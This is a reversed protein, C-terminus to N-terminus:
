LYLELLVLAVSVLLILASYPRVLYGSSPASPPSNTSTVVEKSCAYNCRGARVVRYVGSQTLIYVDKRNDEGFSFIYELAPLNSNPVSDCKIPSDPACSFPVDSTTFNGSNRPNESAAWIHSAYLDGYLYSGYTCPDTQARYFYGGSIAASGLKNFNAHSYGLVPFIPDISAASTNGGPTKQPQFVLPGEYVRWGYNGGKSIIDVEEYQDQGVDACLFYSPREADFSCRWPNRLGYAWIEPEMEKDDSYPNDQPISYNGWLGQKVIEDDSPINDINVRIIKGLLSKKNQAFNFPDGKSGGDGLMIYMYGDAPGFLIQGGHNATFPLGLTFIRRVEQPKARKAMSPTSATGNATYEAIVTHYKCVEGGFSGLESPDCGADLNCACRGGCGPSKEKDCNFSAFFRGNSAFDPHFAMGMMGFSTDLYVQDTLDVFPSSEDIGLAEGSDQDPIDALWIKGALNSFFARNSGDPHPVMNIYSGNGIKELCIGKPPSLTDTRNLSTPEGNFCLSNQDAAAAGGFAACFDSESQWLDTLKSSTANRPIAAKTELSPAFPSNSISTDKCSEWVTSCFGNNTNTSLSSVSTGATSNCLFPVTRLESEAAFLKASFPDCTSCLISKVASACPSDSINMALFRKQLQLDESSNCCTEGSYPCFAALSGGKSSTTPASLDTCLPFSSSPSPFLLLLLCFLYFFIVLKEMNTQEYFKM